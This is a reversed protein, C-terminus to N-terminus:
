RYHPAQIVALLPQISNLQQQTQESSLGFSRLINGSMQTFTHYWHQPQMLILQMGSLLASAALACQSDLNDRNVAVMWSDTSDIEVQLIDRFISQGNFFRQFVDIRYAFHCMFRAWDPQQLTRLYCLYLTKMIKHSGSDSDTFQQRILQQMEQTLQQCLDEFLSEPRIGNNYLTARSVGIAAALTQFPVNRYGHESFFRLLETSHTSAFKLEDTQAAKTMPIGTKPKSSMQKPDSM